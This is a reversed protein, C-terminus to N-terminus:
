RKSVKQRLSSLFDYVFSNKTYNVSTNETSFKIKNMKDMQYLDKKVLLGKNDIELILVNNVETIKSGFSLISKRTNKREIYIWLDNDFMSRTSPPGMIEIIDNKNSKNLFLQKEKIEIFKVGHNNVVKDLSCNSIFAYVIFLYLTKKM